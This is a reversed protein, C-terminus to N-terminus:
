ESRLIEFVVAADNEFRPVFHDPDSTAFPLEPPDDRKDIFLLKAESDLVRRM